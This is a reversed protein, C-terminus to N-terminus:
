DQLSTQPLPRALPEPLAEAAVVECRRFALVACHPASDRADTTRVMECREQCPTSLIKLGCFGALSLRLPPLSLNAAREEPQLPM